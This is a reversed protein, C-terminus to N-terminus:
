CPKCRNPTAQQRRVNWLAVSAKIASLSIWNWDVKRKSFTFSVDWREWYTPQLIRFSAGKYGKLNGQLINWATGEELMSVMLGIDALYIKFSDPIANEMLPLETISTNYCRRIIGADEIWQLSGQYQKSRAGKKITAYQFKKNEKDFKDKRM